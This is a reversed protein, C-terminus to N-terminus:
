AARVKAQGHAQATALAQELAAVRDTLDAAEILKAYQAAVQGIAHAARLTMDDSDAHMLVRECEILSQWLMRQLTKLDGPKRLRRKTGRAKRSHEAADM